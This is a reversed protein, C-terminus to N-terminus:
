INKFVKEPIMSARRLRGLSKESSTLYKRLHGQISKVPVIEIAKGTEIIISRREWFWGTEKQMSLKFADKTLFLGRLHM